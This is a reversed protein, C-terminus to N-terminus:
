LNLIWREGIFDNKLFEREIKKWFLVCVISLNGKIKMSFEGDYKVIFYVLPRSM